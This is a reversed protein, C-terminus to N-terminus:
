IRLPQKGYRRKMGSGPLSLWIEKASANVRVRERYNRFFDALLSTRLCPVLITRYESTVKM